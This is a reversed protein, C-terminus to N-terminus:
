IGLPFPSNWGTLKGTWNESGMEVAARQEAALAEVDIVRKAKKKPQLPANKKAELAKQKEVLAAHEEMFEHVDQLQVRTPRTSVDSITEEKIPDM